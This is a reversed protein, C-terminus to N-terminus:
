TLLNNICMKKCPPGDTPVEGESKSLKMPWLKQPLVSPLAANPLSPSSCVSLSTFRLKGFGSDLPSMCLAPFDPGFLPVLKWRIYYCFRRALQKCMEYPIWTGQIKLLGGRVRKICSHLAKPTLEVLKMIDARANARMNPMSHPASCEEAAQAAARWLGTLHVNGSRFDWIVWHSGIPYKYVTFLARNPNLAPACYRKIAINPYVENELMALQDPPVTPGPACIPFNVEWDSKSKGWHKSGSGWLQVNKLRRPTTYRIHNPDFPPLGSRPKSFSPDHCILAQQPGLEYRLQSPHNPYFCFEPRSFGLSIKESPSSPLKSPYKHPLPLIFPADTSGGLISM